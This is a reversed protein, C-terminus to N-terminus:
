AAHPCTVLSVRHRPCRPYLEADIGQATLDGLRACPSTPLGCLRALGMLFGRAFGRNTCFCRRCTRGSLLANERPTGGPSAASHFFFFTVSTFARRRLSTLKTLQGCFSVRHTPLVSQLREALMGLPRVFLCVPQKTGTGYLASSGRLM